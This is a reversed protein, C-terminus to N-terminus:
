RLRGAAVIGVICASRRHGSSEVMRDVGGRAVAAARWPASKTARQEEAPVGDAAWASLTHNRQNLGWEGDRRKRGGNLRSTTERGKPLKPKQTTPNTAGPELAGHRWGTCDYKYDDRGTLIQAWRDHRLHTPARIYTSKQKEHLGIQTTNKRSPDM